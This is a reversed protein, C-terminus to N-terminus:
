ENEKEKFNILMADNEGFFRNIEKKLEDVKKKAAKYEESDSHHKFMEKKYRIRENILDDIRSRESYILSEIHKAEETTQDAHYIEDFRTEANKMIQVNDIITMDDELQAIVQSQQIPLETVTIGFGYGGGDYVRRKILNHVGFEDTSIPEKKCIQWINKYTDFLEDDHEDDFIGYLYISQIVYNKPREKSYILIAEDFSTAFIITIDGIESTDSVTNFVYMKKDKMEM